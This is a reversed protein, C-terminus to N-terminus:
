STGMRENSEQGPSLFGLGGCEETIVTVWYRATTGEQGKQSTSTIGSRLDPEPRPPLAM